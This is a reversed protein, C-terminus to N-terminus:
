VDFFACPLDCGKSAVSGFSSLLRAFPADQTTSSQVGVRFLVGQWLSLFSSSSTASKDVCKATQQVM